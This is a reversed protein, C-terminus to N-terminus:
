LHNEPVCSHIENASFCWIPHHIVDAKINSQIGNSLPSKCCKLAVLVRYLLKISIIKLTRLQKQLDVKTYFFYIIPLKIQDILLKIVKNQLLIYFFSKITHWFRKKIFIISIVIKSSSKYNLKFTL